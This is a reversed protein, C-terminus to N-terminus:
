AFAFAIPFAIALGALSVSAVLLINGLSFIAGAVFAFLWAKRAAITLDDRLSFGDFGLSGVTLALVVACAFAGVMWDAYYIEYRLKRSLGMKYTNIWSALCIFSVLLIVLSAAFTQPLIM